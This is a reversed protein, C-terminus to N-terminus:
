ALKADQESPVSSIARTTQKWAPDNSSFLFEIVGAISAFNMYLLWSVRYFRSAPAIAGIGAVLLFLLAVASLIFGIVSNASFAAFLSAFIWGLTLFGSCWRLLKHSWLLWATTPRFFLPLFYQLTRLSFSTNRKKRRFEDHTTRAFTENVIATNDFLVRRGQLQVSLVSYFDDYIFPSPLPRWLERRMTYNGGYLAMSSGIRAENKRLERDVEWFRKEAAFLMTPENSELSIDGGVAGIQPDVFHRVHATLADPHVVIDADLFFLIDNSAQAVLDNLTLMKGRRVKFYLARLLPEQRSVQELITNTGDTSGDSGCLIEMKDRPYDLKRVSELCRAIVAAENHAPLIISVTPRYTPDTKWTRQLVSAVSRLTYRFGVYAYILAALCGIALYIM